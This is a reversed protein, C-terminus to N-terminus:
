SPGIYRISFYTSDFRRTPQIPGYINQGGTFNLFTMALEENATLNIYSQCSVDEDPTGSAHRFMRFEPFRVNDIATGSVNFGVTSGSPNPGSFYAHASLEYRGTVPAKLRNNALTVGGRLIPDAMGTVIAAAPGGVQFGNLKFAQGFIHNSPSVEWSDGDYFKLYKNGDIEQYTDGIKMGSVTGIAAASGYFQHNRNAAQGWSSAFTDLAQFNQNIKDIDAVEDDGGIGLTGGGPLYMNLFPTYAPM